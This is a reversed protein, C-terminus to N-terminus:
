RNRRRHQEKLKLNEEDEAAKRWKKYFIEAARSKEPDPNEL